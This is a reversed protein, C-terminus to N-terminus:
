AVHVHVQTHHRQNTQHLDEEFRATVESRVREVEGEVDRLKGELETRVEVCRRREVEVEERHSHRWQELQTYLSGVKERHQERERSVVCERESLCVQVCVRTM